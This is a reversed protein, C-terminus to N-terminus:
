HIIRHDHNNNYNIVQLLKSNEDLWKKTSQYNLIHESETMLFVLRYRPTLYRNNYLKSFLDALTLLIAADANLPYIDFLGFTKITATIVITPLQQQQKGSLQEIQNPHYQQEDHNNDDFSMIPPMLEGHIIPMKCNRTPAHVTGSVTVQYGNAAILNILEDWSSTAPATYGRSTTMNDLSRGSTALSHDNIEMIISELEKNYFSFYVPISIPEVMM